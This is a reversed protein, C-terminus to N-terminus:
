RHKKTASMTKLYKASPIVNPKGAVAKWIFFSAVGIFLVSMFLLLYNVNKENSIIKHKYLFRGIHQIPSYSTLARARFSVDTGENSFEVGGEPQSKNASDPNM